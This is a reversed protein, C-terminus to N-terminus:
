PGARRGRRNGGAQGPAAPKNRAPHPKGQKGDTLEKKDGAVILALEADSLQILEQRTTAATLNLDVIKTEAPKGKAQTLLLDLAKTRASWDPLPVNVVYKRLENCCKCTIAVSVERSKEAAFAEEILTKWKADLDPISDFVQELSLRADSM